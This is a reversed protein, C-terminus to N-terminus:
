SLKEVMKPEGSKKYKGSSVLDDAYTLLRDQGETNMERFMSILESEHPKLDIFKKEYTYELEDVDDRCFSDLSVGFFAALKKITSMRSGEYGKEYLGVITTYPIGSAQSLTRKNLGNERMLFDIKNLLNM